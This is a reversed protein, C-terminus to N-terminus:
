ENILEVALIKANRDESNFKNLMMEIEDDSPNKGKFIIKRINEENVDYFGINVKVDNLREDNIEGIEVNENKSVIKYLIDIIGEVQEKTLNKGKIYESSDKVIDNNLSEYIMSKIEDRSINDPFYDKVNELINLGKYHKFNYQNENINSDEVIYEKIAPPMIITENEELKKKSYKKNADENSAKLKNDNNGIAKKKLSTDKQDKEKISDNGSCGM